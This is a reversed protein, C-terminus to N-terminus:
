HLLGKALGAIVPVVGILVFAPLFCGGLPAALRVGVKRAATRASARQRARLDAAVAEVLDGLPAGTRAARAASRALGGLEPVAALHRWASEPDAGLRLHAAVKAFASGIPSPPGRGAGEQRGGFAEAVAEAALCPGRGVALCAAFLEVAMPLEAPDVSRSVARPSRREKGVASTAIHDVWWVGALACVVGLVSCAAGVPTLLLTHLPHAGIASGLLIGFLPLGGLLRATARAAGVESAVERRIEEACDLSDALRRVGSALRAGGDAGKLCAALSRLQTRGPGQSETVLVAVTRDVNGASDLREPLGPWERAAATLAERPMRGGRLEGAFARCLALVRVRGRNESRRRGAARWRREAFIAVVPVLVWLVAAHTLLVALGGLVVSAAAVVSSAKLGQAM